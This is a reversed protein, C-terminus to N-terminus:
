GHPSMTTRGPSEGILAEALHQHRVAHPLLNAAVEMQSYSGGTRRCCEASAAFCFAAYRHNGLDNLCLMGIGYFLSAPDGLAVAAASLLAADMPARFLALINGYAATLDEGYAILRSRALPWDGANSADLFACRRADLRMSVEASVTNPQQLGAPASGAARRCAIADLLETCAERFRPAINPVSTFSGPFEPAPSHEAAPLGLQKRLRQITTGADLELSTSNVMRVRAPDLLPLLLATHFYWHKALDYGPEDVAMRQWASLRERVRLSQILWDLSGGFGSPTLEHARDFATLGAPLGEHRRAAELHRVFGTLQPVVLIVSLAPYDTLLTALADGHLPAGILHPPTNGSLLGPVEALSAVARGAPAGPGACLGELVASHGSYPLGTVLIPAKLMSMAIGM